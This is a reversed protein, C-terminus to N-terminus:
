EEFDIKAVVSLKTDIIKQVRKEVDAYDMDPNKAKLEEMVSNKISARISEIEKAFSQIAYRLYISYMEIKKETIKETEPNRM